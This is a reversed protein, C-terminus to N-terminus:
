KRKICIKFGIQYYEVSSNDYWRISSRKFRNQGMTIVFGCSRETRCNNINLLQLPNKVKKLM